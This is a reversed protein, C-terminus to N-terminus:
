DQVNTVKHVVGVLLGLSELQARKGAKAHDLIVLVLGRKGIKHLANNSVLVGFPFIEDILNATDNAELLEVNVLQPRIRFLVNVVDFIYLCAQISSIEAVGFLEVRLITDALDGLATHLISPPFGLLQLQIEVFHYLRIIIDHYKVTFVVGIIPRPTVKECLESSEQLLPLHAACEEKKRVFSVRSVDVCFDLSFFWARSSVLRRVSADRARLRILAPRAFPPPAVLSEGADGAVLPAM